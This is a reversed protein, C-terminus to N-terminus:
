HVELGWGLDRLPRPMLYRRASAHDSKLGFSVSLGFKSVPHARLGLDRAIRRMWGPRDGDYKLEVVMWDEPILYVDGPAYLDQARPAITATIRLDLTLRVKHEGPRTSVWVERDYHVVSVPRRVGAVLRDFDRAVRRDKRKGSDMWRRWPWAEDTACWSDADTIYGRSKVVRDDLKRKNELFVPAGDGPKGYTRARLRDRVKAEDLRGYFDHFDPTDFYVSHVVYGFTGDGLDQAHPDPQIHAASEILRERMSVPMAYKCEFRGDDQWAVDYSM